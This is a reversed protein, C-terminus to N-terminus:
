APSGDSRTGILPGTIEMLLGSHLMVVPAMTGDIPDEYGNELFCTLPMNTWSDDHEKVSLSIGFTTVHATPVAKIDHRLDILAQILESPKTICTKDSDSLRIIFLRGRSREDFSLLVSLLRNQLVERNTNTCPAPGWGLHLEPFLRPNVPISDAMTTGDPDYERRSV